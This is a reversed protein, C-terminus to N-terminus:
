MKFLGLFRNALCFLTLTVLILVISIAAALGWNLLQNVQTDILNSIMVVRGGGLLAPTIFFGLAVVFVLICGAAIGPLSLPVFIRAFAQFPSAGLNQAAKLLNRDIGKMVGYLPMIMFPLLVHSMGVTVGFSNYMLKLPQAIVGTKILLTNIVGTRQLIAMWAYSRVLISTWLCVIVMTMLVGAWRRKVTVIAYAALYGLVLCCFTVTLSVRITNGLVRLYIPTKFIALFHKMTFLPDFLSLSLLRLLPYFLFVGLFVILPVVLILGEWHSSRNSPANVRPKKQMDAEFFDIRHFL